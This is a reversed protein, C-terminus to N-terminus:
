WFCSNQFYTSLAVSINVTASFGYLSLKYSHKKILNYFNVEFESIKEMIMQETMAVLRQM